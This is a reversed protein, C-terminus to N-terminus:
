LPVLKWGCISVREPCTTPREFWTVISVKVRPGIMEVTFEKEPVTHCFVVFIAVSEPLRVVRVLENLESEPVTVLRKFVILVSEPLRAIVFVFTVCFVASIAVSEPVTVFLKLVSEPDIVFVLEFRELREPVTADRAVAILVREPCSAARAAIEWSATVSPVAFPRESEPWISERARAEATCFPASDDVSQVVKLELCDARVNPLIVEDTGSSTTTFPVPAVTHGFTDREIPLAPTAVFPSREDVSQFVNLLLILRVESEVTPDYREYSLVVPINPNVPVVVLKV